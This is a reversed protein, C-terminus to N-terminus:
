APTANSPSVLDAMWDRAEAHIQEITQGDLSDADALGVATRHIRYTAISIGTGLHGPGRRIAALWQRCRADEGLARALTLYPLLLDPLGSLGSQDLLEIIQDICRATANIDGTAATASALHLLMFWDHDLGHDATVNVCREMAARSRPPDDLLNVMMTAELEMVLIQDIRNAGPRAGLEDLVSRADEFRQTMALFNARYGLTAAVLTEAGVEVAIEQAEDLMEYSGTADHNITDFTAGILATALEATPGAPRFLHVAREGGRKIWPGNRAARAARGAVLHMSAKQWDSLELEGLYREIREILASARQPTERSYVWRLCRLLEAAEEYRGEAVVRDEVARHDDYHLIAWGALPISLNSNDTGEKRLYNLVWDTHAGAFDTSGDEAWRERAFLKVTELLRNGSGGDSSVLGRDSLGGLLRAVSPKGAAVQEVDALTFSSPFAALLMLLEQEGDDLMMWSDNLVDFLSSHRRRRRGRTLLEFRQDLRVALEALTLQRLQAAALEISLPLGDLHECISAVLDTDGAGVDVGVREAADVFLRIAPSNQSDAVALPSVRIQREDPLELPERSTVIVHVNSSRELLRDIVDAADDTVHECNDFVFLLQRNSAQEALADLLDSGALRLGSASAAAEAISNADTTPVLDVFWTGQDFRDAIEAAVAVALRTKGTGGIGLLSVLRNDLVAKAIAIIEDSRGVLQTREVPLNHRGPQLTRLPPFLTTGVQWIREAMALDKLRSEGLDTLEVDGALPAASASLLTQGGHGASVIRATRNLVQGFYDNDREEAVGVHIGIRVRIPTLDPWPEAEIANQTASAAALADPVNHFAAVFQDGALSFVYGGNGEISARVIQDHRGLAQRMDDPHEEWLRTSSEVDTFFFTVTGTPIGAIAQTRKEGLGM